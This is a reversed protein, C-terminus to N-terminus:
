KDLIHDILIFPPRIRVESGDSNFYYATDGDFSITDTYWIAPHPGKNTIVNGKIKYRYDNRGCSFVLLIIFISNVFSRGCYTPFFM